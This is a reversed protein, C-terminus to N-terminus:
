IKGVREMVKQLDIWATRKMNPNIILFDPHFIPVMSFEFEDIVVDIFQGHIASLKERRGLLINTTTAGLSVVIKPKHKLISSRLNQTAENPNELNFALDNVNELGEEFLFRSFEQSTLKMAGIMKALLDEGVGDYKDGVFLVELHNEQVRKVPPSVPSPTEIKTETTKIEQTKAVVVEPTQDQFHFFWASDKFLAGEFSRFFPDNNLAKSKQLLKKFQQEMLLNIWLNENKYAKTFPRLVKDSFLNTFSVLLAQM